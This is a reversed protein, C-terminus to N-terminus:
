LGTKESHATESEGETCTVSPSFLGAMQSARQSMLMFVAGLSFIRDAMVPTIYLMVLSAKHQTQSATIFMPTEM